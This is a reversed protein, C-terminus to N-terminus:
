ANFARSYSAALKIVDAQRKLGAKDFIRQLHTKVTSEAIGLFKATEPVGGVDVIGMFVRTEALTLGFDRAISQSAAQINVGLKEVFVAAAVKPHISRVQDSMGDFRFVNILYREGSPATFSVSRSSFGGDRNGMLSQLTGQSGAGSVEVVGCNEVLIDRRALLEAGTANAHVVRLQEDIFIVAATLADLMSSLKEAESRGAELLVGMKLARRLHPVILGIDNKLTKDVMRKGSLVTLLVPHECNSNDLVINAADVQGQPLLWENYFAGKRFASYDVLDPIATIQGLPPLSQLPDCKCYHKAYLEIYRPDAGFYYHTIGARSAPDKSFIGCPRGCLLESLSRAVDSWLAPKVAADYVLEILDSSKSGTRM